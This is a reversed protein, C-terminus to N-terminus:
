EVSSRALPPASRRLPPDPPSLSESDPTSADPDIIEWPRSAARVYKLKMDIHYMMQRRVSRVQSGDATSPPIDDRGRRLAPDNFQLWRSAAGEKAAHKSAQAFHSSRRHMVRSWLIGGGGVAAVGAVAAFVILWRTMPRLPM